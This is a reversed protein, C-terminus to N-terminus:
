HGNLAPGAHQVGELPRYLLPWQCLGPQRYSPILQTFTCEDGGVEALVKGSQNQWSRLSHQCEGQNEEFGMGEAQRQRGRSKPFCKLVDKPDSKEKGRPPLKEEGSHFSTSKM